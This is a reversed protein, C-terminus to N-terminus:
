NRLWDHMARAAAGLAAEAAPQVRAPVTSESLVVVAISQGDPHDVVGAEHRMHLLTGTKSSWHSEDTELDPALRHRFANAGLLERIKCATDSGVKQPRWIEQLLDGMAAASTMNGLSYDLQWMRHSGNSAGRSALEYAFPAEAPELKEQLTNMQADMFHRLIMGEIKLESLMRNVADVGIERLLADTSSNDSMSVSLSLADVLAIRAPHRFRSIGTPGPLTYKGPSVVLEAVPNLEGATIKACVSLAVPIKALSAMPMSDHIDIGAQRGSDLDRVLIRAKLGADALSSRIRTILQTPEIM